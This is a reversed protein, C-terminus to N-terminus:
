QKETLKHQSLAVTRVSFGEGSATSVTHQTPLDFAGVRQWRDQVTETRLLQGTPEDWYQVIYSRPLFKGEANKENELMTITMNQGAIVRNVSTIQRDKVRYSTAMHGGEFALLPGLPHDPHDDAFRLVPKPRQASPTQGAARHMTISELQEQLWAPVPDEGLDVSVSGDAAVTITGEFPRDDLEAVIKATFGPFEQWAAREALADEFLKVAEADAGERVLPWPFAITAYERVEQYSDGRHEGPTKDLHGVYVSWVGPAPPAFRIRGDSDAEIEESVLDADVTTFKAQPVPKGQRLATLLVADDEFTAIIELPAGKAHLRNLEDAKGAVAKSYHRLLFKPLGPRELVGYDLQGVVMLTGEVPVHGRLRDALRKMELPRFEGPRTQLFYQGGAMKEVYRPDGASAYESFYVECARGGEAPPLIRAFMFHAEAMNALYAMCVITALGFRLLM